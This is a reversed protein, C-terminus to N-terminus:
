KSSDLGNGNWIIIDIIDVTWAARHNHYGSHGQWAGHGTGGSHGGAEGEEVPVDEMEDAGISGAASAHGGAEASDASGSAEAHGGDAPPEMPRTIQLPQM